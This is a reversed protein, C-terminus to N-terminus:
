MCLGMCEKRKDRLNRVLGLKRQAAFHLATCGGHDSHNVDVGADLLARLAAAKAYNAAVFLPTCGQKDEHTVKAGAEQLTKIVQV